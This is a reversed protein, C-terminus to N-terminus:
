DLSFIWIAIRFYILLTTIDVITSILPGSSIAPDVGIRKFFLPLLAGITTAVCIIAIMTLAVSLGLWPDHQFILARLAALIGIITGMLLGILLEKRIIRWIDGFKLEGTALGRVVITAAQTGAGGGTNMLLPIFFALTVTTGLLVANKEMILGSFLSAVVLFLLWSIRHRAVSIINAQLYNEVPKTVAGFHYMDETSEDEMVDLVDDVTIIGKMRKRVDVVPLALFDYRSIKRAAHEQDMNVPVSIIHRHMIKPIPLSPNAVVLEKLSLVGILRDQKDLVYLYYITELDKATARIKELSGGVTDDPSLRAFETTMRGGATNSDYAILERVDRAEEQEMVSLFDKVMAPPLASFLDARDDSSIRNLLKTSEGHSLSKLISIQIPRNLNEFIDAAFDKDWNNFLFLREKAKLYKVIEAIEIPEFDEWISKLEALKKQVILEKIEPLVLKVRSIQQNQM